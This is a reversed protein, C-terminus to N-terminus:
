AKPKAQNLSVSKGGLGDGKKLIATGKSAISAEALSQKLATLMGGFPKLNKKPVGKMYDTPFDGFASHPNRPLNNNDYQKWTKGSTM